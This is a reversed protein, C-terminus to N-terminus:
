LSKDGSLQQSFLYNVHPLYLSSDFQTSQGGFVSRQEISDRRLRAMCQRLCESHTLSKHMQVYVNTMILYHYFPPGNQGKVSALVEVQDRQSDSCILIGTYDGIILWTDAIFKTADKISMM